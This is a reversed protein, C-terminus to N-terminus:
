KKIIQFSKLIQNKDQFVTLHYVGAGFSAFSLSQTEATLTNQMLVKGLNDTVTYTVNGLNTDKAFQLWVVDQTPNPYATLRVDPRLNQTETVEYAEQHFGQTLVYQGGALTETSLEGISWDLRYSPKSFSDGATSVLENSVTQGRAFGAFAIGTALLILQKRM